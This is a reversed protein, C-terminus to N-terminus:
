RQRKGKRKIGLKRKTKPARQKGYKEKKKQEAQEIIFNVKYEILDVSEVRIKITQGFTYVKSKDRNYLKMAVEDFEYYDDMSSVHVLGECTNDLMVFLGFKTVGSIIGEFVQDVYQAMYEAKNMDEVEREAEVAKLEGESGMKALEKLNEVEERRQREKKPSGNIFYKKMLRHTMLDPYRRIPATFHLYENLALAFHGNNKAEYKAKAMSRLVMMSIMHFTPDHRFHYLVRQLVVPEVKSLDGRLPYGMVRLTKSLNQLKKLPPKDHVRFLTKTDNSTFLHAACSNTVVMFDEIMMEGRGRVKPYVDLVVGQNDVVFESESTEFEISGMAVRATRLRQSLEDMALLPDKLEERINVIDKPNELFRNVERYTLQQKSQIISEFFEYRLLTGYEDFDMHCSVALRNVMPNLSCIGNSLETPLMPVVRDVVYVSTQRDRAAQDIAKNEVVYHSVDAIHVGLRYGGAPLREISLADDIDKTDDGDITFILENTLDRRTPYDKKKVKMGWAQAEQIEERSFGPTIDHSILVSLVEVGPDKVLGIIEDIETVLPHYSLIKLKVRQQDELKFSHPNKFQIPEKIRADYPRLLWGGQHRLLTAVLFTSKRKVIEIIKGEYRGQKDKKTIEAIVEDGTLATLFHNQGIFVSVEPEKSDVFGYETKTQDFIGQIRDGKLHPEM